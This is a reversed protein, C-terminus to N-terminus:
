DLINYFWIANKTQISFVLVERKNTMKLGSSSEKQFTATARNRIVRIRTDKSIRTNKLIIKKPYIDIYIYIYRYIYIDIYM